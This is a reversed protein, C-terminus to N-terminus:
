EVACATGLLSRYLRVHAETSREITYESRVMAYAADGLRGALDPRVLLRKMAKVLSDADDVPVLLAIPEPWGSVLARLTPIDSAIVAKGAAMAELVAVPMAEQRSPQVFVDIGSLFQPIDGVTGPFGVFRGVGLAEADRVLVSREPGDGAVVLRAGPEEAHLAAFARLLVDHGKVRILSGVAGFVPPRRQEAHAVEFRGVDVGNPIVYVRERPVHRASVCYEVLGPAVAVVADTRPGSWRRYLDFVAPRAYSDHQTSVIIPVRALHAAIGGVIDSGILNTHVIDPRSRRLQRLMRGVVLPWRWDFEGGTVVVPIGAADLRARLPGDRVVLLSVDWGASGLSCALDVTAREAGALALSNVIFTISNRSRTM